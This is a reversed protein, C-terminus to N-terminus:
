KKIRIYRGKQPTFNEQISQAERVGARERTLVNETPKLRPRPALSDAISIYPKLLAYISDTMGSVQTLDEKIRYVKGYSRWRVIGAAINSPVGSARLQEYEDTNPDFAKFEVVAPESEILEPKDLVDIIVALLLVVLLLPVLTLMGRRESSDFLKM